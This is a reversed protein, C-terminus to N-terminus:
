KNETKEESKPSQVGLTLQRDASTPAPLAVGLVYRCCYRSGHLCSTCFKDECGNCTRLGQSAHTVYTGESGCSPCPELFPPRGDCCKETSHKLACLALAADEEDIRQQCAMCPGGPTNCLRPNSPAYYGGHNYIYSPSRLSDMEITPRPTDARNPVITIFRSEDRDM